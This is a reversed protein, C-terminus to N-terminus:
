LQTLHYTHQMDPKQTLCDHRMKSGLSSVAQSYCDDDADDVICVTTSAKSRLMVISAMGPSSLAFLDPHLMDRLYNILLGRLLVKGGFDEYQKHLEVSNWIRSLDQNLQKTLEEVAGDCKTQSFATAHNSLFKSM